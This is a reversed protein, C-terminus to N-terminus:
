KWWLKYKREYFKNNIDYTDKYVRLTKGIADKYKTMVYRSAGGVNRSNISWTIKTYKGGALTETMKPSKYSRVSRFQINDGRRGKALMIGLVDRAYPTKDLKTNVKTRAQEVANNREGAWRKWGVTGTLDVENVADVPYVYNNEVGGEIPDISTFRGLSPLYVRAGM